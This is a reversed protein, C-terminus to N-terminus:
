SLLGTASLQNRAANRAVAPSVCRRARRADRRRADVRCGQPEGSTHAAQTAEPIAIVGPQALVVLAVRSAGADRRAKRAIAALKAQAAARGAGAALVGDAACRTRPMRRSSGNSAASAWTISCRIPRRLSPRRAARVARRMDAIRFQLRGLAPDQRRARLREFADVTEASRSAAAGICCIFISGIRASGSRPQARLCRDRKKPRRQASVSQKSHVRPRAPRCDSAGVIEGAGGDGYMEATDVLTM